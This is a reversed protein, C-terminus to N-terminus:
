IGVCWACVCVEFKRWVKQDEGFDCMPIASQSVNMCVAV